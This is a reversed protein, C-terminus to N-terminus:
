IKSYCFRQSYWFRKNHPLMTIALNTIAHNTHISDHFSSYDAIPEEGCKISRDCKTEVDVIFVLNRTTYAISLHLASM